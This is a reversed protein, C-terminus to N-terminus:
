YVKTKNVDSCTHFSRIHHADFSDQKLDGKMKTCLTGQATLLYRTSALCTSDVTGYHLMLMNRFCFHFRHYESRHREVPISREIRLLISAEWLSTKEVAETMGLTRGCNVELFFAKSEFVKECKMLRMLRFQVDLM